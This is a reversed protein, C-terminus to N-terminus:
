NKIYCIKVYYCWLKTSVWKYSNHSWPWLIPRFSVIIYLVLLKQYIIDINIYVDFYKYNNRLKWQLLKCTALCPIDGATCSFNLSSNNSYLGTIIYLHVSKFNNRCDFRSLHGGRYSWWDDLVVLWHQTGGLLYGYM